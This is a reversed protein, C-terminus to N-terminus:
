SSVRSFRPGLKGVIQMFIREKIACNAYIWEQAPWSPEVNRPLPVLGLSLRYLSSSFLALGHSGTRCKLSSSSAGDTMYVKPRKAQSRNCLAAEDLCVSPSLRSLIEGRPRLPNPRRDFLSAPLQVALCSTSPPIFYPCHSCSHNPKISSNVLGSLSLLLSISRPQPSVSPFRSLDLFFFFSFFRRILM